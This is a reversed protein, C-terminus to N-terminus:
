IFFKKKLENYIHKTRENTSYYEEDLSILYHLLSKGHIYKYDYTFVHDNNIHINAGHEILVRVINLKFFSLKECAIIFAEDIQEQSYSRNKIFFEVIKYSQFKCADILHDHNIVNINFGNDIFCNLIEINNKKIILSLAKNNQTYVNVGKKILFDVLEVNNYDISVFLAEDENYRLDVDKNYLYEVLVNNCYNVSVTMARDNNSHIDAGKEILFKIMDTYKNYKSKEDKYKKYYMKVINPDHLNYLDYFENIITDFKEQIVDHDNIGKEYLLKIIKHNNCLKFCELKTNYLDAGNKLLIKVNKISIDNITNILLSNVDDAYKIYNGINHGLKTKENLISQYSELKLFFKNMRKNKELEYKELTKHKLYYYPSCNDQVFNYYKNEDDIILDVSKLKHIKSVIYESMKNLEKDFDEFSYKDILFLVYKELYKDDINCEIFCNIFNFLEKKIEDDFKLKLKKINKYKLLINTPIHNCKRFFESNKFAKKIDPFIM